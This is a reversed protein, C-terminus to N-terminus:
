TCGALTGELSIVEVGTSADRTKKVEVMLSESGASTPGIKCSKFEISKPCNLSKTETRSTFIGSSMRRLVVVGEQKLLLEFEPPLTIPVTRESAGEPSCAYEIGERLDRLAGLEPTAGVLGTIFNYAMFLIFVMILLKFITGIM